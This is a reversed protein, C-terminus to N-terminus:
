VFVLDTIKDVSNWMAGYNRTSFIISASKWCQKKSSRVFVTFKHSRVVHTVVVVLGAILCGSVCLAIVIISQVNVAGTVVIVDDVVGGGDAVVASFPVIVSTRRLYVVWSIAFKSPSINIDRGQLAFGFTADTPRFM